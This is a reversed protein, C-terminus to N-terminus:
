RKFKNSCGETCMPDVPWMQLERAATDISYGMTLFGSPTSAPEFKVTISDLIEFHNSGELFSECPIFKGDSKFEIAQNPPMVPRWEGPGGPAIYYETYTWKGILTNEIPDLNSKKCGWILLL